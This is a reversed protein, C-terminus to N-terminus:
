TKTWLRVSGGMGGGGSRKQQGRGRLRLNRRIVLAKERDHLSSVLVSRSKSARRTRSPTRSM